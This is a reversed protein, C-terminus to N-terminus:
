EICSQSLRKWRSSAPGHSAGRVVTEWGIFSVAMIYCASTDTWRHYYFRLYL